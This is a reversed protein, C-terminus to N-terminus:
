AEHCGRGVKQKSGSQPENESASGSDNDKELLQVACAQVSPPCPLWMMPFRASCSKHSRCTVLDFSGYSIRYLNQYVRCCTLLVFDFAPPECRCDWGQLDISPPSNFALRPCVAFRPGVNSMQIARDQPMQCGKRIPEICLTHHSPLSSLSWGASSVPPPPTKITVSSLVWRSIDPSQTELGSGKQEKFGM